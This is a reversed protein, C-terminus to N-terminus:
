IRRVSMIKIPRRLPTTSTQCSPTNPVGNVVMKCDNCRGIGCFISRGTHNKATYRLTRVGATILAAAIPEGTVAPIREGNYFIYTDPERCDELIPHQKVRM